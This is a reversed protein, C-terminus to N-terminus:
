DFLIAEIRALVDELVFEPVAEKKKAKRIKWDVAKLQHCHVSGQTDTGCGMLTVITGHSRAINATGQSIPCLMALGMKNFEKGSLVLAFHPGKMEKGSSPDFQLHIIEGRAPVYAM